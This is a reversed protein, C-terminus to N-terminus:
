SSRRLPPPPAAAMASAILKNTCGLGRLVLVAIEDAVQEVSLTRGIRGYESRDLFPRWVSYHLVQAFISRGSTVLFAESQGPAIIRVLEIMLREYPASFNTTIFEFDESPCLAEQLMLRVCREPRGGAASQAVTGRIFAVLLRAAGRRTRPLAEFPTWKADVDPHKLLRRITELYLKRKSGFHYQISAANAGARSAIDRIGVSDYGRVSFLEEAADLLASRTDGNPQPDPESVELGEGLERGVGSRGDVMLMGM